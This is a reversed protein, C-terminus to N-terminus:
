CVTDEERIGRERKTYDKARNRGDQAWSGFSIEFLERNERQKQRVKGTKSPIYLCILCDLVLLPSFTLPSSFHVKTEGV